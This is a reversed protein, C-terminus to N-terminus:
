RLSTPPHPAAGAATHDIPSRRHNGLFASFGAHGRMRGNWEAASREM